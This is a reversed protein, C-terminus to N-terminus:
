AANSRFREFASLAISELLKSRAERAFGTEVKERRASALALISAKIEM